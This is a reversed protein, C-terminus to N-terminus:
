DTTDMHLVEVLIVTGYPVERGAYESQSTVIAGSGRDYNQAGKISINLGANVLIANAEAATRGLVEPVKVMKSEPDANNTYLIIKGSEKTLLSGRSTIQGTVTDGNGVVEVRLGLSKIQEKATEVDSGIYRAVTVQIKALEEDTYEPEIGLYPLINELFAAVYPAAVVSGYVSDGTPEDVVIIVAIQPFLIM